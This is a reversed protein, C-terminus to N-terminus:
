RIYLSLILSFPLEKPFRDSIFFFPFFFFFFKLKCLCIYAGCVIYGLICGDIWPQVAFAFKDDYSTATNQM